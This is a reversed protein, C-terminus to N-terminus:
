RKQRFEITVDDQAQVPSGNLLTPHFRWQHVASIVSSLLFIPGNIPRVDKVRGDSGITARVKVTETSNYRDRPRPQNPVVYTIVDGAQLRATEHDGAASREAPSILVSLQSTIGLEPSDAISKRPLIARVLKGNEAPPILVNAPVPTPHPAPSPTPAPSAPPTAGRAAPDRPAEPTSGVAAPPAVPESKPPATRAASEGPPTTSGSREEPEPGAEATPKSEKSEMTQSPNPNKSRAPASTESPTINKKSNAEPSPANELEHTRLSSDSGNKLRAKTSPPSSPTPPASHSASNSSRSHSPAPPIEPQSGEEDPSTAETPAADLTQGAPAPSTAEGLVPLPASPTAAPPRTPRGFSRLRKEIPAYGATLGLIFSIAVLVFGLVAFQLKFGKEVSKEPLDLNSPAGDAGSPSVEIKSDAAQTEPKDPILPQRRNRDASQIPAPTARQGGEQASTATLMPAVNAISLRSVEVPSGPIKEEVHGEAAKSPRPEEENRIEDITATIRPNANESPFMKAYRAGAEENGVVERGFITRSRGSSIQLPQRDRRVPKPLHAFAPATRERAIWSSIRNRADASLGVFQMGAGKKSESLWIIEASIEISQASGSGPLQFSIRPLREGVTFAHAVAVAMGAESINLVIGSHDNGLEVQTLSAPTTRPETRRDPAPPLTGFHEQLSGM